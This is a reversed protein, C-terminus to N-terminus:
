KFASTKVGPMRFGQGTNTFSDVPEGRVALNKAASSLYDGKFEPPRRRKQHGFGRSLGGKFREFRDLLRSVRFSVPSRVTKDCPPNSDPSHPPSVLSLLFVRWTRGRSVERSGKTNLRTTVASQIQAAALDSSCV